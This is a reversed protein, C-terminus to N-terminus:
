SVGPYVWNQRNRKKKAARRRYTSIFFRFADLGDTPKEYEAYRDNNDTALGFFSNYKVRHGTGSTTQHVPSFLFYFTQNRGGGM